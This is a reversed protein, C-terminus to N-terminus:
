FFISATKSTGLCTCKSATKFFHRCHYEKVGSFTAYKRRWIANGVSKRSNAVNKQAESCSVYTHGILHAETLKVNNIMIMNLMANIKDM